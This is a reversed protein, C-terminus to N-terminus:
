SGSPEQIKGLDVRRKVVRVGEPTVFVLNKDQDVDEGIIMGDPIVAEKDVIVRRLSVNEGISVGDMVVCNELNSGRGVKVGPSLISHDIKCDSIRCGPSILSRSVEVNKLLAPPFPPFFTHIPWDPNYLKFGTKEMVSMSVRFYSDVTGVDMWFPPTDPCSQPFPYAYIHREKVARPFIDRGFDHSSRTDRADESLLQALVDTNMLYVGMNVLSRTPDEPTTPPDAPKEFFHTIRKNSDIEVIGFREAEGVAVPFTVISIEAGSDVHFNVLKRYDMRYIHDGSLILVMDPKDRQIGYLNQFIADATGQYWQDGFRMQPPLPLLFDGLQSNIFHWGKSLHRQLSESRYQTLLYIRRLDSRICNTLTFDVLRYIGGFPVSPKSRVLTLPSLREGAGGALIYTVVSM